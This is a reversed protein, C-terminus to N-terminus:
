GLLKGWILMLKLSIHSPLNSNGSLMSKPSGLSPGGNGLILDPGLSTLAKKVGEFFSPFHYLM